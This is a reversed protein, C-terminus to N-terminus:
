ASAGHASRETEAALADRRAHLGAILWVLEDDSLDARHLDWSHADHPTGPFVQDGSPKTVGKVALDRLQLFIASAYPQAIALMEPSLVMAVSAPPAPQPPSEGGLLQNPTTDLAAALAVLDDVDVRRDGMEIKTIGTAAIPHGIEALRQSLAATTLERERRMRRLNAAM